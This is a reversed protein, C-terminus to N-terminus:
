IIVDSDPWKWTTVIPNTEDFGTWADNLKYIFVTRSNTICKGEPKRCRSAGFYMTDGELFVANSGWNWDDSLKAPDTYYALKFDGNIGDYSIFMKRSKCHVITTGYKENYHIECNAATKNDEFTWIKRVFRWSNSGLNRSKYLYIDGGDNWNGAPKSGIWYHVGDIETIKGGRGINLLNRNNDRWEVDNRVTSSKGDFWKDNSFKQLYRNTEDETSNKSVKRLSSATTATFVSSLLILFINAHLLVNM